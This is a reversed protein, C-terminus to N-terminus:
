MAHPVKELVKGELVGPPKEAEQENRREEEEPIDPTGFGADIERREANKGGNARSGPFQTPGETREKQCQSKKGAAECHCPGLPPIDEGGTRGAADIDKDGEIDGFGHLGIVEVLIICRACETALFLAHRCGLFYDFSEYLL